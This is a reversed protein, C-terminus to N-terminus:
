HNDHFNILNYYGYKYITMTDMYKCINIIDM